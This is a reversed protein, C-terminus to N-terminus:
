PKQGEGDDDPEDSLLDIVIGAAICGLGVAIVGAPISYLAIGAAVLALGVVILYM